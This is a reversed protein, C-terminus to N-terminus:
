SMDINILSKVEKEKFHPISIFIVSLVVVIILVLGYPDVSVLNTGRLKNLNPVKNFKAKNVIFCLTELPPVVPAVGQLSESEYFVSFM